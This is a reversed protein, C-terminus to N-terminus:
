PGPVGQRDTYYRPVNGWGCKGGLKKQSKKPM